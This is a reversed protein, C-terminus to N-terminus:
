AGGGLLALRRANLATAVAAVRQINGPSGRPQRAPLTLAALTNAFPEFGAQWDGSAAAVGPGYRAAGLDRIKRGYKEAGARQVGRRFRELVGGASVAQHFNQAAAATNSQWSQAAAEANAAYEAAAGSANRSWKEASRDLPKVRLAM